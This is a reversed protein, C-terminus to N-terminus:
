LSQQICTLLVHGFATMRQALVLRVLQRRSIQHPFIIANWNVNECINLQQLGHLRSFAFQLVHGCNQIACRLVLYPTIKKAFIGKTLQLVISFAAFVEVQRVIFEANSISPSLFFAKLLDEIKWNWNAIKRDRRHPFWKSRASPHWTDKWNTIFEKRNM